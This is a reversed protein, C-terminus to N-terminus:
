EQYDLVTYKINEYAIFEKLDQLNEWLNSTDYRCIYVGANEFSISINPIKGKNNSLRFDWFMITDFVHKKDFEKKAELLSQIECIHKESFEAIIKYEFGM